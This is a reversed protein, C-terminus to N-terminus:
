ILTQITILSECLQMYSCVVKLALSSIDPPFELEPNSVNNMPM